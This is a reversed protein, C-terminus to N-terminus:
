MIFCKYINCVIQFILTNMRFKEEEQWVVIQVQHLFVVGDVSNCPRHLGEEGLERLRQHGVIQLCIQHLSETLKFCTLHHVSEESPTAKM